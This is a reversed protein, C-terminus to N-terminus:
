INSTKDVKERYEFIIDKINELSNGNEISSAFKDFWEIKQEMDINTSNSIKKWTYLFDKLVTSVDQDAATNFIKNISAMYKKTTNYDFKEYTSIAENMLLNALNRNQNKYLKYYNSFLSSLNEIDGNKEAQEGLLSFFTFNTDNYNMAMEEIYKRFGSIAEQNNTQKLQSYLKNINQAFITIVDSSITEFSTINPNQGKSGFIDLSPNSQTNFIYSLLTQDMKDIM